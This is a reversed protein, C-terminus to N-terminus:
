RASFEGVTVSVMVEASSITGPFQKKLKAAAAKPDNMNETSLHTWISGTMATNEPRLTIALDPFASFIERVRPAYLDKSFFVSYSPRDSYTTHVEKVEALRKIERLDRSRVYALKTADIMGAPKRFDLRVTGHADNDQYFLIKLGLKGFFAEVNARTEQPTTGAVAASILEANIFPRSVGEQYKEAETQGPKEPAAPISISEGNKLIAPITTDFDRTTEEAAADRLDNPKSHTNGRGSVAYVAAILIAPLLLNIKNKM